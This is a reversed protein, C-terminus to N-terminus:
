IAPLIARRIGAAGAGRFAPNPDRRAPDYLPSEELPTALLTDLPTLVIRVNGRPATYGVRLGERQNAIETAIYRPIARWRALAQSRAAATGVPQAAALSTVTPIWGGNTHSVNWLEFRCLRM